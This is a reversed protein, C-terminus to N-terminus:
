DKGEAGEEETEEGQVGNCEGGIREMLYRETLDAIHRNTIEQCVMLLDALDFDTLEESDLLKNVVERIEEKEM